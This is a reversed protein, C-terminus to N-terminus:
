KLSVPHLSRAILIQFVLKYVSVPMININACTDLRARLYQNRKHHPKLRYALNTIILHPFRPMLKHAKYKLKFVSHNMVPPLIVQSAAYQIKKHICKEWKCHIHRPPEQSLLFKRKTACAPLIVMNKNCTRCQFKRALCKFGEIYKSDGCKSCKDRRQHAQRPDFRM